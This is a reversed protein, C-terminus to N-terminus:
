LIPVIALTKIESKNKQRDGVDMYINCVCSPICEGEEIHTCRVCFVGRVVRRCVTHMINCLGLCSAHRKLSKRGLSTATNNNFYIGRAFMGYLIYV